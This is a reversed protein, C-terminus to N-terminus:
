ADLPRRYVEYERRFEEETIEEQAFYARWEDRTAREPKEMPSDDEVWLGSELQKMKKSM